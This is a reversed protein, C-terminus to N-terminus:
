GDVPFRLLAGVGDTMGTGEAALDVSSGTAACAKLLFDERAAPRGHEFLLTDVAGMEAARAVAADGHVARGHAIGANLQEAREEASSASHEGAIRRMQEALAEESANDDRGSSDTEVVLDALEEPLKDRLASRAQVEGALVLVRPHFENRLTSLREAIDGVNHELAEDARRQIQKHALAGGRPKHVGEAAGGEVSEVDLERATHQAACVEQRIQAGEQDIVAVLMRVSRAEERVYAALEPLRTWHAHDGTGLAADWPEDLVLGDEVSVLVRGDGHEEGSESRNLAADIADLAGATAGEAALAERLGKWRLRVQQQADEGPSRGELYVTAFPGENEYVPRLKALDM